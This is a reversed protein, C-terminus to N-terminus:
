DSDQSPSYSHDWRRKGFNRQILSFALGTASGFVLYQIFFVFTPALKNLMGMGLTPLLFYYM